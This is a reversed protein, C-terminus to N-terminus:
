LCFECKVFFIVFSHIRFIPLPTVKTHITPSKYTKTSSLLSLTCIVLVIIAISLKGFLRKVGGSLQKLQHHRNHAGSRKAPAM